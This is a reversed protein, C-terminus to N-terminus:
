TTEHFFSNIGTNQGGISQLRTTKTIKLALNQPWFVADEFFENTQVGVRGGVKYTTEVFTIKWAKGEGVPHLSTNVLLITISM